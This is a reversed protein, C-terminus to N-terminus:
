WSRPAPADPFSRIFDLSENLYQQKAREAAERLALPGTDVGPRFLADQAQLRPRDMDLSSDFPDRREERFYALSTDLYEKIADFDTQEAAYLCNGCHLLVRIARRITRNDGESRASGLIDLVANIQRLREESPLCVKPSRLRARMLYWDREDVPCIAFTEDEQRCSSAWPLSLGLLGNLQPEELTIRSQELMDQPFPDFQQDLLEEATLTGARRRLRDAWQCLIEADSKCLREYLAACTYPPQLGEFLAECNTRVTPLHVWRFLLAAYLALADDDWDQDLRFKLRRLMPLLRRQTLTGLEIFQEGLQKKLAEFFDTDPAQRLLAAAPSCLSQGSPSVYALIGQPDVYDRLQGGTMSMPGTLILTDQRDPQSMQKLFQEVEAPCYLQMRGLQAFARMSFVYACSSRKGYMTRWLKGLAKESLKWDVPEGRYAPKHWGFDYAKYSDGDLLTLVPTKDGGVDVFCVCSYGSKRLTLWLWKRFPLQLTSDQFYREDPDHFLFYLPKHSSFM